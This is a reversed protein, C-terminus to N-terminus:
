VPRGRRSVSVAAGPAVDPWQGQDWARYLETQHRVDRWLWVMRDCFWVKALAAGHWATFALWFEGRVFGFVTLALFALSLGTAIMAVRVHHSPVAVSKRNLFLREGLVAQSAWNDTREPPPFLRPNLWIWVVAAAIAAGGWWGMWFPSWLAFFVLTGGGIRSYVSWPNAHRAWVEPTMSMLWEAGEFPGPKMM